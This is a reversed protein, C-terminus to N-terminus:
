HINIRMSLDIAQIDKTLSGISIYDVGTEAVKRINKLTIGGSAELEAKGSAISVADRLLPIDMNDLLVRDVGARLAERLQQLDEVEVELLKDASIQRAAHVAQSISGAAAVHNEKILVADFLGIRHNSCGGCFVAYKQALRLGPLTKRTDLVQTKLDEVSQAYKRARTATASLTQLFNLATREATLLIRANGDITCLTQGPQVEAGDELKWVIRTAPDLQLFAANFWDQGCITATERCIVTASATNQAPILAATIDGDGIDEDLAIRVQQALDKKYDIL